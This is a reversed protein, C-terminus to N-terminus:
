LTAVFYSCSVYMADSPTCDDMYYYVNSKNTFYVGGNQQVTTDQKRLPCSLPAIACIRPASRRVCFHSQLPPCHHSQPFYSKPYVAVFWANCGDGGVANGDDCVEGADLVGNGCLGVATPRVPAVDFCTQTGARVSALSCACLLLRLHGRM